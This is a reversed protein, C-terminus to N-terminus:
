KIFNRKLFLYVASKTLYVGKERALWNMIETGTAGSERMAKIESLFPSMKSHQGRREVM